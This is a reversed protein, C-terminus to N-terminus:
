NDNGDDDDDDDGVGDAVDVDDDDPHKGIKCSKKAVAEKLDDDDDVHNEHSHNCM